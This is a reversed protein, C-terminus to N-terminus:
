RAVEWDYFDDYLSTLKKGNLEAKECFEGFNRYWKGDFKIAHDSDDSIELTYKKNKVADRFVIKGPKETLYFLDYFDFNNEDFERFEYMLKIIRGMAEIHGWFPENSLREAMFYKAGTLLELAENNRGEQARIGALRYLIEPYPENLYTPMGIERYAEEILERYKEEDKEVHYGNHYMDALKYKCWLRGNTDGGEAGKSFYTFAKGYDKEGHQGYYWMYGLEEMSPVYGLEAAMELYKLELDFRKRSCYYWGLEHMYKPDKTTDILLGLAETLLFDDDESPNAIDYYEHVIKLADKTKM